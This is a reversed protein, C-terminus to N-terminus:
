ELPWKDGAVPSGAVFCVVRVGVDDVRYFGGREKRLASRCAGRRWGGGRLVHGGGATEPGLPDEVADATYRRQGDRCWEWVNGHMDYLGWANPPYSGVPVTKGPRPGKQATGFPHDPDINAERSSLSDGFHFLTTTGARCAYEWEAETPLRYVRGAKREEPLEALKACFAVAEAWLVQEVPHQPSEKSASPNQGMVREYQGQTVEHVGLYFGKSIRVEHQPAEDKEWGPWVYGKFPEKKIRESDQASTGMLFKGPPIYVLKMGLSNVIAKAPLEQPRPVPEKATRPTDTRVYLVATTLALAALGVCVGLMRRLRSRGRARFAPVQGVAGTAETLGQWTDTPAAPLVINGALAPREREIAELTAVVARASAPREEPRRALLQMVLRALPPPLDPNLEQVLTPAERAMAVLTDVADGGKWPLRGTCLRYLVCGLSFLDARGDIRDSWAQEPAMYAPTGLVTGPQTLRTGGAAVCALGFDLLKVRGGATADLWINGPKIDRHILGKDHAAALGRAIERGLKLIPGLPLPTGPGDGDQKKLFDELSTGKLLQMALFPVGQDEGVQFLTVIHDDELMAAARAERLFRERAGPLRAAEPRLVKLAVTRQLGPDEALFVVGMGGQGLLKLVRYPGLRGIEDPFQPPRLLELVGRNPRGAAPEARAPGATRLQLLRPLLTQIVKRDAPRLAVQTHARMAEVLTDEAPLRRVLRGCRRCQEVHRELGEATEDDLHGLLLRQLQPAEPCGPAGAM